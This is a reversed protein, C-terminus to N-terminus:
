LMLLTKRITAMHDHAHEYSMEAIIHYLPKDKKWSLGAVTVSPEVLDYEPLAQVTGLLQAFVERQMGTLQDSTWDAYQAVLWENQADDALDSPPVYLGWMEHPAVASKRHHARVLATVFRTWIAVHAVVDKVSWKGCTNPQTMRAEGVERLFAGWNCQEEQLKDLFEQKVM